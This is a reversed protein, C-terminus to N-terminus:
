KKTVEQRTNIFADVAEASIETGCKLKVSGDARLTMFQSSDSMELLMDVSKPKAPTPPTIRRWHTVDGSVSIYASIRISGDAFYYDIFQTSGFDEKTPKREAYSVWEDVQVPRLGIENSYGVRGTFCYYPRIEHASQVFHDGEKRIEGKELLRFYRPKTSPQADPM